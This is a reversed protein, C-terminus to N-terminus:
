PGTERLDRFTQMQFDTAFNCVKCNCLQKISMNKIHVSTRKMSSTEPM